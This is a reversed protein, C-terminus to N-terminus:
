ADAAADEPLICGPPGVWVIGNQIFIDDGPRVKAGVTADTEMVGLDEGSRTSYITARGSAYSVGVVTGRYDDPAPMPFMAM